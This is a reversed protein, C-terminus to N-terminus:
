VAWRSLGQPVEERGPPIAAITMEEAGFALPLQRALPLLRGTKARQSLRARRDPDEASCRVSCYKATQKKVLNPCGSRACIRLAPSSRRSVPM